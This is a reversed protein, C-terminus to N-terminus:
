MNHFIVASPQEMVSHTRAVPFEYLPGMYKRLIELELIVMIKSDTHSTNNLTDPTSTPIFTVSMSLTDNEGLGSTPHQTKTRM